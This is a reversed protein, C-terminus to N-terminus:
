SLDWKRGNMRGRDKPGKKWLGWNTTLINEQLVSINLVSIYGGRDSTSVEDITAFVRYVSAIDIGLFTSYNTLQSAIFKPM